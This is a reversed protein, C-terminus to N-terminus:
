QRHQERGRQRQRALWQRHQGVGGSVSAFPGSATNGAGGSVSSRAGSATNNVGGSVSAHVGSATNCSGGSVSASPGSVTNQQGAVMGGFSKLRHEPGIILNHSGARDGVALESPPENYGIVLNGLGTLAGGGASGDDTAGAGSRIHVNAGEFIVHPGILGDLPGEEVRVFRALDELTLAAAPVARPREELTTIAAEAAALRAELQEIRALLTDPAAVDTESAQGGAAQAGAPTPVLPSGLAAGATLVVVAARALQQAGRRPPTRGSRTVLLKGAITRGILEPGFRERKM